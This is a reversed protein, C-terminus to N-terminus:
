FFVKLLLQINRAGGTGGAARINNFSQSGVFAYNQGQGPDVAVLNASTFQPHNFLNFFQAGFQLRRQEGFPFNKSVQFDFNNIGPARVSNRGATPFSGTQAQVFRASSNVALYAVTQGSSNKVATVTTGTDGAGNPNVIVRQVTSDGNGVSNALSLATFPLGSSAAYTTAVSWGGLIQRQTGRGGQYWPLNWILQTVFRKPMDLVSVSRENRLNRWDQPRRPDIFNIFFENTADDINRSWTYNADFEFGRSFRREIEFIGANYTSDGIPLHTTLPSTFGYQAFPRVVQATFQNVTPLTNLVSQSPVQSANFFTPLFASTPPVIGANLRAQVSLHTGKSYLYRVTATWNRFVEREVGLTATQLYPRVQDPVYAAIIARANATTNLPALQNPIGGNQLFNSTPIPVPCPACPTIIVQQLSSPLEGGGVFAGFIPVYSIGYGGRLSTRGDGFVDWAFGVRPAWNNKEVTPKGFTIVGPVNAIAEQEQVAMDRLLSNFEYRVGAYLSLRRTMKFQDQAYWNITHNNLGIHTTGAGRQGSVTPPIDAVFDQFKVYNYTGRPAVNSIATVINNRLDIGFKWTHRGKQWSIDDMLQYIDNFSGSPVSGPPGIDLPIEGVVINPINTAASNVLSFDTSQRHFALRAENVLAPSFTHVYGVSALHNSVSGNANLQANPFGPTIGNPGRNFNYRFHVVDIPGGNWDSSVLFRHSTSFTPVVNNVPGVPIPTGSVIPFSSAPGSQAATAGFQKMFNLVYGSVGAIGSLTQYGQATPFIFTSSTSGIGLNEFEYAGFYFLKDRVVPGGVTGGVRNYDYRPKGSIAGSAIAAQTLNDAANLNRNQMYWFANGHIANTGTKTTINFLGGSFQGYEADFNNKVLSFQQVADQIVVAQPGTNIPDNNDVGDVVFNNNRARSGGVSAVSGGAVTSVRQLLQGRTLGTTNIDVAAPTLLALNNVNVSALPLDLVQQTSFTDTIQTSTTEVPALAGTVEVKQSVEGVQLVLSISARVNLEIHLSGVASKFGKANAAFEYNGVPLTPFEFIGASNTETAYAVGTDVNKVTIKVSPVVGGSQDNVTGVVSGSTLQAQAPIGCLLIGALFACFTTRAIAM